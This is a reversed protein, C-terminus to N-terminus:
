TQKENCLLFDIPKTGGMDSSLGIPADNNRENVEIGNHVQNSMIIKELGDIKM